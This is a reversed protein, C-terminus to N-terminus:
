VSWETDKQEILKEIENSLLLLKDLQISCITYLRDYVRNLEYEISCAVEIKQEKGEANDFKLLQDGLDEYIDKTISNLDRLQKVEVGMNELDQFNIEM